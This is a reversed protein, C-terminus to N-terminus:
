DTAREHNVNATSRRYLAVVYTWAHAHMATLDAGSAPMSTPKERPEVQAARTLAELQAILHVECAEWKPHESEMACHCELEGTDQVQTM